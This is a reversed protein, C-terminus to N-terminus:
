RSLKLGPVIPLRGSRKGLLVRKASKKNGLGGLVLGGSGISLISRRCPTRDQRSYRFDASMVLALSCDFGCIDGWTEKTSIPPCPSATTRTLLLSRCVSNTQMSRGTLRCSRGVAAGQIIPDPESCGQPTLALCRLHINFDDFTIRPKGHSISGRSNAQGRLCIVFVRDHHTVGAPATRGRCLSAVSRIYKFTFVQRNWLMWLSNWLAQQRMGCGQEGRMQTRLTQEGPWRVAHPQLYRPSPM